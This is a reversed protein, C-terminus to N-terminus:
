ERIFRSQYHNDIAKRVSICQSHLQDLCEQLRAASEPVRGECLLFTIEKTTAMEALVVVSSPSDIVDVGDDNVLSGSVITTQQPSLRGITSTVVDYLEIGADILAISTGNIAAFLDVASSIFDATKVSTTEMGNIITVSILITAKPYLDLRISSKVADKLRNSLNREYNTKENENKTAFSPCSVDKNTCIVKVDCEVNCLESNDQYSSFTQLMRPGTITTMVKRGKVSICSSGSAGNVLNTEILQIDSSMSVNDSEFTNTGRQKLM